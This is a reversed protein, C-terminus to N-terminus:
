HIPGRVIGDMKQTEILTRTAYRFICYLAILSLVVPIAMWYNVICISVSVTFARGLGYMIFMSLWVVIQDLVLIDKSFHTMIRGVPNSDFFLIEARSVARAMKNHM